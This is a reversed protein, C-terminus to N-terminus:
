CKWNKGVWDTMVDSMTKGELYVQTDGEEVKLSLYQLALLVWSQVFENYVLDVVGEDADDGRGLEFGIAAQVCNPVAYFTVPSHETDDGMKGQMTLRRIDPGYILNRRIKAKTTLFHYKLALQFPGLFLDLARPTSGARKSTYLKARASIQEPPVLMWEQLGSMKAVDDLIPGKSNLLELVRSAIKLPVDRVYRFGSTFPSVLFETDRTFPGEFIDFRVSGTNTIVLARKGEKAVRPSRSLESPLVSDTLWTFISTNSPYEM